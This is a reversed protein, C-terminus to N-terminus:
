LGLRHALDAFRPDQRIPDYKPEVKLFMLPWAKEDFGKNLMEFAKERDNLGVYIYAIFPASVYRQQAMQLVRDLTKLADARRGASAYAQGLECLVGADNPQIRVAAEYEGISETLRNQQLYVAALDSRAAAFNPELALTKQFQATALGYNRALYHALGLGTSIGLSVPDLEQAAQIQQLAERFRGTANLLRAYQSHGTPYNRNVRIAHQFEHEAEAWEWDYQSKIIGLSTHAEALDDDLDLARLVAAKAKPFVERPPILGGQLAYCDSLGAYALAFRSDRQIAQNYFDIALNLGDRTRKNWQYRGKLYLQYAESNSTYPKAVMRQDAPAAHVLNGIGRAIDEPVSSVTALTTPFQEGWLRVNSRVDSLEASVNFSDGNRSVTGTLIADVGLRRGVQEPMADRDKLGFVAARSIIRLSPLRSLNNIVNDTLGDSLYRLDEGGSNSFPLVALSHLESTRLAYWWVLAAVLAVAVGVSVWRLWLWRSGRAPRVYPVTTEMAPAGVPGSPVPAEEAPTGLLARDLADIFQGCTPYRDEPRKAMGRCLVEAVPAGFASGDREPAPPEGNLIQFFIGAWTDSTFPKKGTLWEYALVALSFEDSLGSIGSQEIQEPSMYHATGRLLGTETKPMANDGLAKAIGFDAIKLQGRSTIMLNAPKIDRHIVGEGHAYDLAEAAQHLYGVITAEPLHEGSALQAALTKGEVFEMVLYATQEEEILEHVTVINPHSLRGAKQAEQRLSARLRQFDAGQGALLAKIAVTRGIVSDLASYVVGEGGRGLEQLVRFRGIQM